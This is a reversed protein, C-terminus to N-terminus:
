EENVPGNWAPAQVVPGGYALEEYLAANTMRRYPGVFFVHLLGLTLGSLLEWGIFSLDLVFARWKQGTMMGKSRAFAEESPMAPNEALLYPIMRYEYAKVIGPIIFLLSWLVTYLDRYFMVRVVNKYSHDYGYTIEKVEAPSNLNRLFFRSGGMELPNLLFVDALIALTIIVAVIAIVVLIIMIVAIPSIDKGGAQQWIEEIQADELIESEIESGSSSSSSDNFHNTLNSIGSASGGVAGSGGSAGGILLAMILAVLVTKWYNMQLAAKGKDKLQKRTWM